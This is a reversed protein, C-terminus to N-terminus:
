LGGALVVSGLEGSGALIVGGRDGDGAMEGVGGFHLFQCGLVDEDSVAWFVLPVGYLPFPGGRGGQVCSCSPTVARM